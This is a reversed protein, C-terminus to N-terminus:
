AAPDGRRAELEVKADSSVGNIIFEPPVELILDKGVCVFLRFRAPPIRAALPHTGGGASGLGPNGKDGTEELESSGGAWLPGYNGRVPLVTDRRFRRM